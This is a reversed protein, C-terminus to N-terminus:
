LSSILNVREMNVIAVVKSFMVAYFMIALTVPNNCQPSYTHLTIHVPCISDSMSPSSFFEEVQWCIKRNSDKCADSSYSTWSRIAEVECDECCQEFDYFTWDSYFYVYYHSCHHPPCFSRRHYGVWCWHYPLDLKRTIVNMSWLRACLICQIPAYVSCMYLRLLPCLNRM